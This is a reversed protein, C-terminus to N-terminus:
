AHRVHAGAVPTGPADSGDDQPRGAPVLEMRCQLAGTSAPPDTWALTPRLTRAPGGAGGGIQLPIM